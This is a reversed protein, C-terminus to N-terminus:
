PATPAAESIVPLLRGALVELVHAYPTGVARTMGLECARNCSAHADAALARVETAERATASATLEPHLMGRDGAFACCGWDDPVTVEEASARAVALLDGDIGLRRSSCTPHLALHQRALGLAVGDLAPLIRRATFEVADLVEFGEAQLGHRLGETCSAADVVVPLRGGDTARDLARRVRDLMTSEGDPLGKSSWPTGCCLADIGDPVRAVLGAAAALREFATQVGAGVPAFMTGQCSPFAVFDPEAMPVPRARSRGGRPLDRSWLPIRDEGLIARAVRNPFEVFPAPVAAAISLAAGAVRTLRWHDAAATWLAKEPASHRDRRLRKVLAGTNIGVPCATQCMGDVACTEVSDYSQEHDLTRVLDDDGDDRARAQARRVVIRQRPTLTLDRSPCVPECYGCEVCSDVEAEIQPVSKLDSLHARPDESILVGPNMMGSPDVLRKIERMVEYLDDGYQRRVFPAMVRGTGHEAKLTGREALVLDVLDETFAAYREIGAPDAFDDTLMFHLNGDKAHGFIVSDRYGHRAVLDTLARCTRALAEVPVAVDELLATTGSARSGAVAAYLGKRVRWLGARVVPDRSLTADGGPALEGLVPAAGALLAELGADDTAQFEILLAARDCVDLSRIVEPAEPDSQGVRLSTADLLEIAVAGTAAIAPVAASAADLDDFVLLGTAMCPLIPVTRFTAEAVFALTGEAGILLHELIGVASDHDLFSNLGYGMTNKLAFQRRIEDVALPDVRVRDRMRLLGAHLDPERARLTADADPSSTDIVTGSPLVFTMSEVTRYANAHTGCSMGSSNNAVVGGITCASESAPDPGLRVGHRLLRTNAERVTVGSQVRVRAGDDLVWTRRFGRRVDLLVQDTVGQGSLSTGGSRLTVSAGGERARDFAAIVGEIDAALVIESPVLHFHSADSAYAHRDIARTLRQTPPPSVQAPSPAIM